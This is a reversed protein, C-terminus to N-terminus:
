FLFIQMLANAPRLLLLLRFSLSPSPTAQVQIQVADRMQHLPLPGARALVLVVSGEFSREAWFRSKM